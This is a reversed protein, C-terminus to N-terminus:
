KGPKDEVFYLEVTQNHLQYLVEPDLWDSDRKKDPKLGVCFGGDDNIEEFLTGSGLTLQTGIAVPPDPPYIGRFLDGCHPTHRNQKVIAVLNGHKHVYPRTDMPVYGLNGNMPDVMAEQTLHVTGYRDTVRESRSWNLIGTGLLHQYM